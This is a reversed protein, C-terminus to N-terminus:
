SAYKLYEKTCNKAIRQFAGPIPSSFPATDHHAKDTFMFLLSNIRSSGRSLYANFMKTDSNLDWNSETHGLFIDLCRLFSTLIPHRTNYSSYLDTSLRQRTQTSQGWYVRNSSCVRADPHINFTPSAYFSKKIKVMFHLDMTRLLANLQAYPGMPPLPHLISSLKNPLTVLLYGPIKTAYDEPSVQVCSEAANVSNPIQSTRLPMTILPTPGDTTQAQGVLERISELYDPFNPVNINNQFATSMFDELKLQIGHIKIPFNYKFILQTKGQESYLGVPEYTTPHMLLDPLFLPKTLSIKDLLEKEGGLYTDSFDRRIIGTERSIIYQTEM